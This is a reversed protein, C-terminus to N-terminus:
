ASGLEKLKREASDRQDRLRKILAEREKVAKEGVSQVASLVVSPGPGVAVTDIIDAIESVAAQTISTQKLITGYGENDSAQVFWGPVTNLGARRLAPEDLYSIRIYTDLM